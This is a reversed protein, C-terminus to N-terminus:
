NSNRHKPLDQNQILYVFPSSVKGNLVFGTLESLSYLLIVAGHQMM